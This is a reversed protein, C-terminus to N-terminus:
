PAEKRSKRKHGTVELVGDRSPICGSSMSDANFEDPSTLETLVVDAVGYKPIKAELDPFRLM